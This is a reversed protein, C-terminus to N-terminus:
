GQDSQARPAFAAVLQHSDGPYVLRAWTVWGESTRTRRVIELCADGDSLALAGAMESDANLARIRHSAESWPVRRLLWTGPPTAGFDQELVGPAQGPNVLRTEHCFPQGDASHLGELQLAGQGAVAGSGIDAAESGSLARSNRSLLTFRYDQGMSGVEAEIDAIEMIASQARPQAVFTGRKKRRILYGERALRTLAKNMTMRSVGYTEAMATEVPLQHGPAWDGSVIMHRIDATIRDHQSIRRPPQTM